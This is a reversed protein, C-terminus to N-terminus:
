VHSSLMAFEGSERGIAPTGDEHDPSPGIEEGSSSSDAGDAEGETELSRHSAVGKSQTRRLMVGDVAFAAVLTLALGAVVAAVTLRLAGGFNQRAVNDVVLPMSRIAIDGKAGVEDQIRALNVPVSDVLYHLAEKTSEATSDQVDVAIIPGSTAEEITVAFHATPAVRSIEEAMTESAYYAVLVRAPLALGGLDLLPNGKPGVLDKSPLMMVLGRASYQSPAVAMAGWALGATMLLGILLVYWRRILANRTFSVAM